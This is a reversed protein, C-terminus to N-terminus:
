QFRVSDLLCFEPTLLHQGFFNQGIGSSKAQRKTPLSWLHLSKRLFDNPIWESNQSRFETEETHHVSTFAHGIM